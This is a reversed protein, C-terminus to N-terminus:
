YLTFANFRNAARYAAPNDGGAALFLGALMALGCLLLTVNRM